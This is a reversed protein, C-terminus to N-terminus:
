EKQGAHPDPSKKSSVRGRSGAARSAPRKNESGGTARSAPASLIMANKYLPFLTSVNVSNARRSVPIALESPSIKHSGQSTRTHSKKVRTKKNLHNRGAFATKIFKGINRATISKKKAHTRLFRAIGATGPIHSKIGRARSMMTNKRTFHGKRNTLLGGLRIKDSSKKEEFKIKKIRKQKDLRYKVREKAKITDPDNQIGISEDFSVPFVRKQPGYIYKMISLFVVCSVSLSKLTRKFLEESILYDEGKTLSEYIILKKSVVTSEWIKKTTRADEDKKDKVVYAPLTDDRPHHSVSLNPWLLNTRIFKEIYSVIKQETGGIGGEGFIIKEEREVKSVGSNTEFTSLISHGNTDTINFINTMIDRFGNAYFICSFIADLACSGRGSQSFTPIGHWQGKNALVTDHYPTLFQTDPINDRNVYLYTMEQTVHEYITTSWTPQGNTRARLVGETDDANYWTDFIKVYAVSHSSTSYKHKYSAIIACLHVSKTDEINEQKRSSKEDGIVVSLIDKTINILNFRKFVFAIVDVPIHSANITCTEYQANNAFHKRAWNSLTTVSNREQQKGIRLMIVERITRLIADKPLLLSAFIPNTTKRYNVIAEELNLLVNFNLVSITKKLFNEYQPAVPQDYPPPLGSMGLFFHLLRKITLESSGERMKQEQLYNFLIQDGPPGLSMEYIRQKDCNASCNEITGCNEICKKVIDEM